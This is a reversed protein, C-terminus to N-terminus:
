AIQILNARKFSRWSQKESDYYVQITENKARKDNGSTAPVLKENLTGWAERLTGDVKQFYFKVIRKQMLARLKINAWACKLADSMSYGNRKVFTWALLMVDKMTSKMKTSM